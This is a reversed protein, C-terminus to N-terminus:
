VVSILAAGPLQAFAAGLTIRGLRVTCTEGTLVNTLATGEPLEVEVATDSWVAEGLPPQTLEGLLRAFLRGRPSAQIRGCAGCPCRQGQTSCLEPDLYIMGAQIHHPDFIVVTVVMNRGDDSTKAYALFQDNDISLFRLSHDAHLAPDDRRIQNVRTIFPALSGPDDHNWNRLQYKESNLCEESGPSRPLHERLEYAPGYIGYSAALTAALVLRAMFTAPAGSRLERFLYIDHDTMM